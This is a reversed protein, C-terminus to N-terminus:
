EYLFFHLKCCDSGLDQSLTWRKEPITNALSTPKQSGEGIHSEVSVSAHDGCNGKLMTLVGWATRSLFACSVDLNGALEPLSFSNQFFLTEGFGLHLLLLNVGSQLFVISDAM